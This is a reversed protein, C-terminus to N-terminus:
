RTRRASGSRRARGKPHSGRVIEQRLRSKGSGPPATVLVAVAMPGEVSQEYGSMLLGLEHDRGVYPMTRGLLTRAHDATEREARLVFVNEGSEVEFRADLLGATTDDLAIGGAAGAPSALLAVARGIVGGVPVRGRVMGPGTTVVVHAQPLLERLALALRAAHAVQDTAAGSDTLTAILSGDAFRDLVLREESLGLRTRLADLLEPPANDVDSTDDIAPTTNAGTSVFVVTVLRLESGTLAVDRPPTQGALAGPLDGLARLADMVARADRPRAHPDKALMRAVLDDLAPPALPVVDRLRPPEEMLVKMLVSCSPDGKFPPAGALCEFLVCGLAFVDTAPGVDREGRVQEPAMYGPTGILAGTATVRAPMSEFRAVGFDLVKVREVDGGVLFLNSPKVDRHVVGQAHAAALAEAALRV